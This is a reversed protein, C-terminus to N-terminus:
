KHSNCVDRAVVLNSSGCQPVGREVRPLTVVPALRSAPAAALADRAEAKNLPLKASRKRSM